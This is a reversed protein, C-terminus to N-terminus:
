LSVTGNDNALLHMRGKSCKHTVEGAYHKCHGRGTCAALRPARYYELLPQPKHHLTSLFSELFWFKSQNLNLFIRGTLKRKLKYIFSLQVSFLIMKNTRSYCGLGLPCLVSNIGKLTLPNQFTKDSKEQGSM